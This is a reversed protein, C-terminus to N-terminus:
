KIRKLKYVRRSNRIMPVTEVTVTSTDLGFWKQPTIAIKKIFLKTRMILEDKINLEVQNSLEERILVFAFDGLTNKGIASYINGKPRLEGSKLLDTIVERLFVNIKQNVRFGLFFTIKYMFESIKNVKFQTTFPADTVQVNVFWYISARKPLKNLISYMIKDEVEDYKDASSMYVLNTAYKPIDSDDRLKNLQGSFDDLKVNRRFKNKIDYGKIWVYMLAVINLAILITIYGGHLFKFLNATLFVGEICIYITTFLIILYKNIHNKILYQSLLITTMLMTITISLGYAAEMKTSEKFFLVIICCGIWLLLNVAPIYLQGKQDTPYRVFIRPLFNLRIAESVLTFSGSILAQSAIITALTAIIIGTLLFSKPIISFFPNEILKKGEMSILWAGQGLYNLVLSIKVFIWTVYINDRGCHGLDSYLAEAGTTCLFVAGLILIGLPNTLLFIFGYYPNLAALIQPHQWIQLIGLISLMLFWIFMVPGFSSGVVETGFRQLFFLLSIIAIVIFIIESRSLPLINNIGEIASTVSIPPTIIGDALLSAGGIMAPVMLWKSRKRLIAYLSFIGGEGNNDARLTILVYKITTQLTLTWFILSVSGFIATKNIVNGEGIIAKMTYLPSTGIDGYVIGLTMLLSAFSIKSIHRLHKNNEM